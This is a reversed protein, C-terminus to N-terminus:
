EKNARFKVLYIGVGAIGAVAPIMFVSMSSLGGILLATSDLPLLEGAVLPENVWLEQIVTRFGAGGMDMTWHISCHGEETGLGDNFIIENVDLIKPDTPIFPEYGIELGLALCESDDPDFSFIEATCEITKPIVVEGEPEINVEVTQNQTITCQGGGAFAPSTMGAVLVLALVGALLKQTNNLSM